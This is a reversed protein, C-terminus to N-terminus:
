QEGELINLLDEVVAEFRGIMRAMERDDSLDLQESKALAERALRIGIRDSNTLDFRSSM